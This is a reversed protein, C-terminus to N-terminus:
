IFFSNFTISNEMLTKHSLFCGVKTNRLETLVKFVFNNDAKKSINSGYFDIHYFLSYIQGSVWACNKKLYEFDEM